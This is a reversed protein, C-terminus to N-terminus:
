TRRDHRPTPAKLLIERDTARTQTRLLHPPGPAHRWAGSSEHHQHTSVRVLADTIGLETAENRLKGDCTLVPCKLQKAKWLVTKDPLTKFFRKTQFLRVEEVEEPSLTFVTLQKSRKYLEIQERQDSQMIEREVFDTTCIELDLAFFEPLAQIQIIDFFVSTDTIILKM